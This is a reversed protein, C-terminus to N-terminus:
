YWRGGNRVQNTWYTGYDIANNFKPPQQVKPYAKKAPQPPTNKKGQYYNQGFNNVGWYVLSSNLRDMIGGKAAISDRLLQDAQARSVQGPYDRSYLYDHQSFSTPYSSDLYAKYAKTAMGLPWGKGTMPLQPVSAGNGYGTPVYPYLGNSKVPLKVSSAPSKTAYDDYGFASRGNGSSTSGYMASSGFPDYPVTYTPAAGWGHNSFSSWPDFIGSPVDRSELDQVTLKTASRLQRRAPKESQFGLCKAIQSFISKQKAM